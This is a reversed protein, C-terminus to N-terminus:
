AAPHSRFVHFIATWKGESVMQERLKWPFRNPFKEEPVAPSLKGTWSEIKGVTETVRWFNSLLRAAKEQM